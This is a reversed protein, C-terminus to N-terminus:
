KLKGLVLSVGDKPKITRFSGDKFLSPDRARFRFSDETEDGSKLTAGHAFKDAEDRASKMDKHLTKSIIITQLVLPSRSGDQEIFWLIQFCKDNMGMEERLLHRTCHVDLISIWWVGM